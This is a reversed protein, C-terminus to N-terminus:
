AGEPQEILFDVMSPAVMRNGSYGAAAQYHHGWPGKEPESTVVYIACSVKGEDSLAPDIGVRFERKERPFDKYMGKAPGGIFMVIM